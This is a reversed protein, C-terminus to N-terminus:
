SHLIAEVHEVIRAMPSDAKILYEIAGLKKAKERYLEQGLNSLVIVTPKPSKAAEGMMELFVFGDKNPMIIDLLILDIHQEQVIRLAQEGDDAISVDFGSTTLIKELAKALPKEDEVILIHKQADAM